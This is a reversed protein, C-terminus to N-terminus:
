PIAEMRAKMDQTALRKLAMGQTGLRIVMRQICTEEMGPGLIAKCLVRIAM